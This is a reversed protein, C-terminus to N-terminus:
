ESGTARKRDAVRTAQTRVRVPQGDVLWPIDVTTLRTDGSEVTGFVHRSERHERMLGAYDDYLSATGNHERVMQVLDAASFNRFYSEYVPRVRNAASGIGTSQLAGAKLQTDIVEDPMGVAACFERWGDVKGSGFAFSFVLSKGDGAMWGYQPEDTAGTARTGVWADPEFQGAVHHTKLAILSQLLNVEVVDGSGTTRERNLIAAMIGQSAFVGTGVTALHAGVRVPDERPGTIYRWYGSAAQAVFESGQRAAWPGRDGFASISCLVARAPKAAILRERLALGEDGPLLCRDLVIVDFRKVMDLLADLGESSGTELAITRKGRNLCAYLTGPAQPDGAPVRTAWDGDASEVKFVTSGFQIFHSCCFAGALGGGIELVRM